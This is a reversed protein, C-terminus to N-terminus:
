TRALGRKDLRVNGAADFTIGAAMAEPRYTVLALTTVGEGGQPSPRSSPFEAALTGKVRGRPSLLNASAELGARGEALDLMVAALNQEVAARLGVYSTTIRPNIEIICDDSGDHAAGLVMDIGLYGVFAPLTAVVREALRRARQAEAHPLPLSGGQYAFHGGDSLHQRCPELVVIGAPGGLVALSAAQGPCFKELRARWPADAVDDASRVFRVGQSGAGNRPKLVAPFTFDRPLPEGQERAVGSPVPLGAARLHEATAHKDSALEVLHPRPGLLRGGADEVSRCRDLLIGDFEPAIVVTWDSQAALHRFAQREAHPHEVEVVRVRPLDAPPLRHDWTVAVEVDDIAAMDRALGTLMALGERLLSGHPVDGASLLGGGTIYESIFVRM